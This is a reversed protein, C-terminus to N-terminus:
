YDNGRTEVDKILKSSSRFNSVLSMLIVHLAWLALARSFSDSDESLDM